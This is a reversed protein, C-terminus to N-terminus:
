AKKKYVWRDIMGTIKEKLEPNLKTYPSSTNINKLERCTGSLDVASIRLFNAADLDFTVEIQPIGKKAKPLPGFELDIIKRNDSAMPREGEYVSVRIYQQDDVTTTFTQTKKYPLITNKPIIKELIGGMLELGISRATCDLLLWDKVEGKIIGAYIAAGLAVLDKERNIFSINGDKYKNQIAEKVFRIKSGGGTFVFKTELNFPIKSAVNEIVEKLKPKKLLIKDIIKREDITRKIQKIEVREYSINRSNREIVQDTILMIKDVLEKSLSSFIEASIELDINQTKGLINRIYPIYIRATPQSSLEIKAKEAAEKIRLKAIHHWEGPQDDIPDFGQTKKTEEVIYKIIRDDFDDGGLFEDGETCEVEVVKEGYNILSLDLTGAGLDFIFEKHEGQTKNLYIFALAAATAENLMRLVKIGAMEAAELAAYRQMVGFNCPICIVAEDVKMKLYEEAQKKLQALIMALIIQPYYRKGEFIIGSCDHLQRKVSGITFNHAEFREAHSAADRGCFFKGDKLLIVKSPIITENYSNPILQPAHGDFLAITSNATGLDIGFTLM